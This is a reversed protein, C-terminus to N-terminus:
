SYQAGRPGLAPYAALIQLGSGAMIVLLPINIWHSLRIAAPQPRRGKRRTEPASTGTSESWPPSFRLLTTARAPKGGDAPHRDEKFRESNRSGPLPASPAKEVLA